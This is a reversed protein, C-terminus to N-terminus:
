GFLNDRVRSAVISCLPDTINNALMDLSGLLTQSPPATQSTFGFSRIKSAQKSTTNSEVDSVIDDWCKGADTRFNSNTTLVALCQLSQSLAARWHRLDCVSDDLESQKSKQEVKAPDLLAFRLLNTVTTSANMLEQTEKRGVIILLIASMNFMVIGSNRTKSATKKSSLMHFNLTDSWITSLSCLVKSVTECPMNPILTELVKCTSALILNENIQHSKSFDGFSSLGSSTAIQRSKRRIQSSDLILLLSSTMGEAYHQADESDYKIFRAGCGLYLIAAQQVEYRQSKKALIEISAELEEELLIIARCSENPVLSSLFSIAELDLSVDTSGNVEKTEKTTVNDDDIEQALSKILHAAYDICASCEDASSIADRGKRASSSMQVLLEFCGKKAAPSVSDSDKSIVHLASVHADVNIVM